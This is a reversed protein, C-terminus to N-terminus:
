KRIMKGKPSIIKDILAICVVMIVQLYNTKEWEYAYNNFWSKIMKLPNEPHKEKIQILKQQATTFSNLTRSKTVIMVLPDMEKKSSVLSAIIEEPIKAFEQEQLYVLAEKFPSTSKQKKVLDYFLTWTNSDFQRIIYTADAIWRIAPIENHQYAHIITFFLEHAPHLTTYGITNPLSCEWMHEYFTDPLPYYSTRYHLDLDLNNKSFSHANVLSAPLQAPNRLKSIWGNDLVAEVAKNWSKQPVIIDLDVTPRAGYDQYYTESFSLGKFIIHAIGAKSLGNSVDHLASKLMQNRYWIYKYYSKLQLIVPHKYGQNSLNKYLLSLLRQSGLDLSDYVQPLAVNKGIAVNEIDIDITKIWEEFAQIASKGSSLCAKLLVVQQPNPLIGSEYALVNLDEKSM